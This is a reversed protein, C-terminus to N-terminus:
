EEMNKLLEVDLYYMKEIRGPTFLYQNRHTIPTSKWTKDPAIRISEREGKLVLPLNFGEICNTYRYYMLSNKWDIYLQLKPIETTTLYQKFVKSYDYGTKETFYQQIQPGDVTQNHFTQNLGALINRFLKDDDISHRITHLMNGGKPYMDGSGQANVGYAPIIPKDNRIGQRIGYNYENASEEGYIYDIFLTESYNTFSEHVYMDALDNSTINNGFWEHGSEHIIIFDWTLGLGTGSGDRGRYGPAYYNGYSVATQHEMGTNDVEILKYGDEYFPYPGFWYEFADLMNHVEEPMYNKAKDLNYDMVWYNLDLKGKLGTYVQSFNVYHGIYPIITYNSIPNEVGWKFSVTGDEHDTRDLLRGNAVATLEKPVRMTLSAGHDPEDSQHDKNPYWISAGLGQCTVTMWPRGQEDKSFSWGGDWPPRIAEHPKGSFYLKIKHETGMAQPPTEIWYVNGKRKYRKIEKGDMLVSDIKLPKQLDIQMKDPHSEEVVTYTIENFGSTYKKEFVPRVYVDYRMVDWWSREPTITGRLTDAQTFEKIKDQGLTTQLLGLFLATALIKNM